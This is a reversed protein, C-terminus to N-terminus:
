RRRLFFRAHPQSHGHAGRRGPTALTRQPTALHSGHAGLIAGVSYRTFCFRTKSWSGDASRLIHVCVFQHLKPSGQEAGAAVCASLREDPAPKLPADVRKDAAANGLSSHFARALYGIVGQQTDLRPREAVPFVRLPINGGFDDTFGALPSPMSTWRVGRPKM